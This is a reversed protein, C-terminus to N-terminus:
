AKEPTGRGHACLTWADCAVSGDVYVAHDQVIQFGCKEHVALSAGNQKRVHSYVKEPCIDLVSQLIASAYGKCRCDPATELAELLLGDRYPELRLASVYRDKEVWVAYFAGPTQYFSEKLYQYFASEAQLIQENESREPSREAGKKRNEEEYVTMLQSFRLQSLRKAVYLM